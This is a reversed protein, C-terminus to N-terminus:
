AAIKKNTKPKFSICVKYLENDERHNRNVEIDKKEDYDISKKIQEFFDSFRTYHRLAVDFKSNDRNESTSYFDLIAKLQVEIQSVITYKLPHDSISALDDELYAMALDEMDKGSGGIVFKPMIRKGRNKENEPDEFYKVRPIKGTTIYRDWNKQLKGEIAEKDPNITMDFSAAFYAEKKYQMVADNGDFDDFDHTMTATMDPVWGNNIRDIIMVQFTQSQEFGLERRKKLAEGYLSNRSDLISRINEVYEMDRLITTESYFNKEETDDVIGIFNLPNPCHEYVSHLKERLKMLTEPNRYLGEAGKKNKEDKVKIKGVIHHVEPPRNSIKEFFEPNKKREAEEKARKIDESKQKAKQLVDNQIDMYAKSNPRPATFIEGKETATKKAKMWESMARTLEMGALPTATDPDESQTTTFRKESIM